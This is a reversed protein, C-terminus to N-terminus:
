KWLEVAAIGAEVTEREEPAVANVRGPEFRMGVDVTRVEEVVLGLRSGTHEVLLQAPLMTRGQTTDRELMAIAKDGVAAGSVTVVVV